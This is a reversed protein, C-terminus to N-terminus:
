RRARRVYNIRVLAGLVAFTPLATMPQAVTLGVLVLLLVALSVLAGCGIVLDM